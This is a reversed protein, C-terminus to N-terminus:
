LVDMMGGVEFIAAALSSKMSSSIGLGFSLLPLVIMEVHLSQRQGNKSGEGVLFAQWRRPIGPEPMEFHSCRPSRGSSILSIKFSEHSGTLRHNALPAPPGDGRKPHPEGM